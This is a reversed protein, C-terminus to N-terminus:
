TYNHREARVKIVLFNNGYQKFFTEIIAARENSQVLLSFKHEKIMLKQFWIFDM